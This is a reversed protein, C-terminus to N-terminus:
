KWKRALWTETSFPPMWAQRKAYDCLCLYNCTSLFMLGLWWDRLLHGM